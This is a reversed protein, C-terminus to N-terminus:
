AAPSLGDLFAVLREHFPAAAERHPWHGAGEALLVECAGDFAEPSRTFTEPDMLDATGGVLLAPQSLRGVGGREMDRYYGLAADLVRPDSFAEKVDRLSKERAPGSWSPAWRAYLDDLHAFDNRRVRGAAGPLRLTVFHRARWALRPSPKLMRPHPIAVPCIARVREPTLSAARYAIAAGFDHGAVIAREEGLADLLGTLDRALETAGYGRGEVITDPHYGRLYPAVTRYGAANLVRRADDWSSPTDPFGHLLVVLPGEGSDEYVYTQGEHSARAAKPRAASPDSGEM